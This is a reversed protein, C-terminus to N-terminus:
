RRNTNRHHPRAGGRSYGGRNQEPPAPATPPASTSAPLPQPESMNVQENFLMCFESVKQLSGQKGSYLTLQLRWLAAYGKNLRVIDGPQLLSGAEDWVSLNVCASADAVKLTRVERGEKTITPPSIDLVVFVANINKMGVKLDKIMTLDPQNLIAAMALMPNPSPM